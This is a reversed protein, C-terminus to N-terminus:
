RRGRIRGLFAHAFQSLSGGRRRSSAPSDNTGSMSSGHHGRVSDTSTNTISGSANLNGSFSLSSTHLSVPTEALILNVNRRSGSSVRRVDTGDGDFIEEAIAASASLSPLSRASATASSGPAATTHHHMMAASNALSDSSASGRTASAAAGYGVIAEDVM